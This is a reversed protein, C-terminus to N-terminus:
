IVTLELLDLVSIKDAKSSCQFQESIKGPFCQPAGKLLSIQFSVLDVVKRENTKDKTMCLYYSYYKWNNRMLVFNNTFKYYVITDCVRRWYIVYGTNHKRAGGRFDAARKAHVFSTRKIFFQFIEVRM